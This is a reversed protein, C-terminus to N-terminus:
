KKELVPHSAELFQFGVAELRVPRCRLSSFMLESMLDGYVLHILWRPIALFSPAGLSHALAKTFDRNRMPEPAVLNFPGELEEHTLLFEIARLFDEMAILSWWQCGSGLKGGLGFRFLPLLKKLAGGDPSLVIGTRICVVRTAECKAAEEWDECLKALFTTGPPSNESLCEDGGDGYYSIASASLFVKPPHKLESITHALLRTAGVRSEYALKKCDKQFWKRELPSGCFNCIANYGELEEPDIIGKGPDWSASGRPLLHVDHGKEKLYSAVHSGIYGSGGALLVKM